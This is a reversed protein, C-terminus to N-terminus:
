CALCTILLNLHQNPHNGLWSRPISPHQESAAVKSPGGRVKEIQVNKGTTCVEVITLSASVHNERLTVEWSGLAESTAKVEATLQVPVNSIVLIDACGEFTHFPDISDSHRLFLIGPPFVRIYPSVDLTVDITTVELPDDSLATPWNHIKLNGLVTPLALGLLSFVLWWWRRRRDVESSGRPIIGVHYCDGFYFTSARREPLVRTQVFDISLISSLTGLSQGLTSVGRTRWCATFEDRCSSVSAELALKVRLKEEGEMRTAGIGEHNLRPTATTKPAARSISSDYQGWGLPVQFYHWTCEITLSENGLMWPLRM